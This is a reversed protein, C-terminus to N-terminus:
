IYTFIHLNEKPMSGRKFSSSIQHLILHPYNPCSKYVCEIPYLQTYKQMSNQLYTSSNLFTFVQIFLDYLAWCMQRYSKLAVLNLPSHRLLDYLSVSIQCSLSQNGDAGSPVSSVALFSCVRTLTLHVSSSRNLGSLWQRKDKTDNLSVKAVCDHVNKTCSHQDSQKFVCM